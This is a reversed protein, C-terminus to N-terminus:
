ERIEKYDQPPVEAVFCRSVASPFDAPHAHVGGFEGIDQSRSMAPKIALYGREGVWHETIRWDWGKARYTHDWDDRLHREWRDRWIGWV